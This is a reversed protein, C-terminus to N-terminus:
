SFTKDLLFLDSIIGDALFKGKQSLVYNDNLLVVVEQVVHKTIQTLFYTAYKEGFLAKIQILNVGWITRLQTMLYENYLDTKTLLEQENPICNKTLSKIYKINNSINWMRTNDFFSHASPGIGLYKKGQWYATNHKSFFQKKGFNSIEYQVFGQKQSATILTNFHALALDEDIPTYKGKKIFSDLATKPEVTLAYASIHPVQLAFVQELEGQWQVNSVHPVGYILDITINKFGLDQAQKISTLAQQANHSRNMYRLTKDDFSQVGISLRNIATQRLAKLKELTLDDPNAELTIELKSALAYNKNITELLYNIQAVHLLSPTGGGFYITEITENALIHKQLELEKALAQVMEDQYKTATSFHFDCYFCAQKCFPIHIYIGAM